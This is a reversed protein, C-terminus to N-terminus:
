RIDIHIRHKNVVWNQNNSGNMVANVKSVRISSRGIEGANLAYFIKVNHLTKASTNKSNLINM